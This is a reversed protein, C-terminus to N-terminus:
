RYKEHFKIEEWRDRMQTAIEEKAEKMAAAMMDDSYGSALIDRYRVALAAQSEIYYEMMEDFTLSYKEKFKNKSYTVEDPVVVYPAIDSVAVGTTEAIDIVAKDLDNIPM